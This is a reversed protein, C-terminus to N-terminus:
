NNYIYITTMDFPYVSNINQPNFTTILGSSGGQGDATIIAKAETTFYARFHASSKLAVVKYDRFDVGGLLPITNDWGQWPESTVVIEFKGIILRAVLGVDFRQGVAVARSTLCGQSLTKVLADAKVPKGNIGGGGLEISIRSGVGATHAQKAVLPDCIGFFLTKDFNEELLARLLHTSSGATGGGPNDATDHIIIPKGFSSDPVFGWNTEEAIKIMQTRYAINSELKELDIKDDKLEVGSAKLVNKVEEIAESITMSPKNLIERKDWIWSALNKAEEKAQSYDNDSTVLVYGGAFRTDAYPFGHFYSVDLIGPKKTIINVKNLIEEGVGMMTSCPPFLLPIYEVHRKPNIKEDMWDILLQMGNEVKNRFDIHPYKHVCTILDCLSDLKTSCKGHLDLGLAVIKTKDGVIERIACVLDSEPDDIDKVVAAGHFYIMVIDIEGANKVGELIDKKMNLYFDYDILGCPNGLYMSGTPVIEIDNKECFDIYAGSVTDTGRFLNILQSGKFNYFSHSTGPPVYTNTEHFLGTLIAKKKM